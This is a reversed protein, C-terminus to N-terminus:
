QFSYRQLNAGKAFSVGAKAFDGDVAGVLVQRGKSSVSLSVRKDSITLSLTVSGNEVFQTFDPGRLASSGFAISDKTVTLVPGRRNSGLQVAGSVSNRGIGLFRGGPVALTFTHQGAFGACPLAAESNAEYWAEKERVWAPARLEPSACRAVVKEEVVPVPATRVLNFEVTETAGPALTVTRRQDEYGNLFARLSIRAEGCSIDVAAPGRQSQGEGCRWEIQAAAPNAKVSITAASRQIRFDAGRLAVTERKVFARQVPSSTFDRRRGLEVTHDGPNVNHPGFHGQADAAGLKVGDMLVDAGAPADRVELVAHQPLMTLTPSFQAVRGKQVEVTQELGPEHEAAVVRVKYQRPELGSIFMRGNSIRRQYVKGDLHVEFSSLGTSVQLSGVNQDTFLGIWIKPAGGAEVALGRTFAKGDTMVVELPGRPLATFRYTNTGVQEGSRDGISVKFAPSSVAAQVTSGFTTVAIASFEAVQIPATLEPISVVRAAFQLHAHNALGQVTVTHPGEALSDTVFASDEMAQFQGGDLKLRAGPLDTMVSLVPPLPTLAPVSTDVSGQAPITVQASYAAYGDAEVVLPYEGPPLDAQLQQGAPASVAGLRISANATAARVKVPIRVEVTEPAAPKKVTAVRWVQTAALTVVLVAAVIGIIRVARPDLGSRLPALNVKAFSTRIWAQLRDWGARTSAAGGRVARQTSLWLKSLIQSRSPGWSPRPLAPWVPPAPTAAVPQPTGPPGPPTATPAHMGTSATMSGVSAAAAMAIGMERPRETAAQVQPVLTPPESWKVDGALQRVREVEERLRPLEPYITELMRWQEYSELFRGHQEHARAKAAVSNALALRERLPRMWRDFLPQDPFQESAQRLIEVAAALDAERAVRAGIEALRALTDRKDAAEAILRLGQPLPHGSFKGILQDCVEMARAYNGHGILALVEDRAAEMAMRASRVLNLFNSYNSGSDPGSSDPADAELELVRELKAEATAFESNQWAERASRYLDEKEKRAARYAQERGEVIQLLEVARPEGPCADFISRLYQRARGFAYQDIAVKAGSLWDEVERRSMEAQIRDRLRLAAEHAPDLKLASEVNQMALLFEEEEHAHEARELFDRISKQQLAENLKERLPVMAADVHGAAELDALIDGAMQYNGQEFARIARQIRPQIRSPDLVAIVEGRQASQLTEAFELAGSYRHRPHKALAKHVARSLVPNVNRNIESIPAPHQNLISAFVEEMKKGRFPKMGCLAEYCVVGLSFIDSAPTCEENRVQEPAMYSVTGKIGTATTAGLLHAVGFDILKVSNFEMVFINAPKIDRHILGSDHIAQLGRCTQAVIEVLRDPSLRQDPSQMLHELTTGVLLPMVFFPKRVGDEEFEGIDFIEIVNPHHLNALVRWERAFMEMATDGHIEVMTKLAVDRGVIRDYARYVVGMGGRGVVSKIEYRGGLAASLNM